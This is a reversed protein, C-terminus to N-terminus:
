PVTRRHRDRGGGRRRATRQRREPLARRAARARDAARHGVTALRGVAAPDPRRRRPIPDGRDTAPRRGSALLDAHQRIADACAAAKALHMDIILQGMGDGTSRHGVDARRAARARREELAKADLRALARRIRTRLQAVTLEGARPLVRREIEEVAKPTATSLLDVMARMKRIDIRGAHLEAWTGRLKTTLLISEVALSEAEMESCGRILALESVFTESVQSLVAPQRLRSDLGPGGLPGFDRDRETHRRRALAAISAAREAVHRSERADASWIDAVLELDSLLADSDPVAPIPVGDDPIPPPQGDFVFRLNSLPDSMKRARALVHV